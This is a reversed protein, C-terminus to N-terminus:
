ADELEELSSYYHILKLITDAIPQYSKTFCELAENINEKRLHRLHNPVKIDNEYILNEYIFRGNLIEAMRLHDRYQKVNTEIEMIKAVRQM